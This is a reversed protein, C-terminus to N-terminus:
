AKTSDLSVKFVLEGNREHSVLQEALQWAPVGLVTARQRLDKWTLEEVPRVTTKLV